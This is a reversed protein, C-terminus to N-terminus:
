FFDESNYECDLDLTGDARGQGQTWAATLGKRQMFRALKYARRAPYPMALLQGGAAICATVASAQQMPAGSTIALYYNGDEALEFSAPL